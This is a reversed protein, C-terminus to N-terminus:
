KVKQQLAELMARIEELQKKVDESEAAPPAVPTAPVVTIDEAVSGEVKMEGGGPIEFRRVFTRLPAGGARELLVDAGTKGFRKEAAIAERQGVVADAEHTEGKRIYIIKVMDGEKKNAVLVSLQRPDILIQDDLKAIVDNAQIGAKEAPSDKAVLQVLLGTDQPISLHSSLEGPLIVANLGLFGVPGTRVVEHGMATTQGFAWRLPEALEATEPTLITVDAAPESRIGIIRAEAKGGPALLPEQASAAASLAAIFLCTTTKM